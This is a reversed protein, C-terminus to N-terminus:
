INLYDKIYKNLNLIDNKIEAHYINNKYNLKFVEEYIVDLANEIKIECNANLYDVIDDYYCFIKDLNKNNRETIALFSINFQLAVIKNILRDKM